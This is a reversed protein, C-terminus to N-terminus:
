LYKRHDATQREVAGGDKFPVGKKQIRAAAEPGWVIAKHMLQKGDPDRLTVDRLEFGPGLDKVVSKLNPGLKEYLQAQASEAGPFAVFQKGMQMAGSVANKVMLQQVVQPSTEMGAFSEPLQYMGAEGREAKLIRGMVTAAKKEAMKAERRLRDAEGLQNAEQALVRQQELRNRERRYQAVLAEDKQTSGGKTGQKRLDDLLDSQLENVYIGEAKGIGPIETTHESFRSFAIPSPPNNLSPHQGEYKALERTDDGFMRRAETAEKKVEKLVERNAARADDFGVRIAKLLEPNNSIHLAADKVATFDPLNIPAAGNAALWQNGKQAYDRVAMGTALSQVDSDYFGKGQAESLQKAYNNVTPWFDANLAPYMINSKAAEWAQDFEAVKRFGQAVEAMKAATADSLPVGPNQLFNFLDDAIKPDAASIPGSTGIRSLALGAEKIREQSAAAGPPLEESLHIVGLPQGDSSSGIYPNDMSQYFEGPKGPPIVTTKFQSPDYQTKIRNLLDVPNLKANGPLDALTSEARAIDYDRMKGKLMGLFQDKQVPGQLNAVMEDLRGVFPAEASPTASFIPESVKGPVKIAGLQSAASTGGGSSPALRAAKMAGSVLPAVQLATGAGFGAQGATTIGSIDPHLASFGQEDPPTGLFGSVAAYTRPDPLTNVDRMAALKRAAEGQRAIKPNVTAPRSAAAIEEPTPEASGGDARRVPKGKWAKGETKEGQAQEAMQQVLDELDKQSKSRRALEIGVRNNHLDQEYDIPMQSIGLKSGIWKGPSTTIEHLNGLMEAANPGYKRALTGAALMHRAADQQDFQGQQGPYMDRAVARSYPSVSLLGPEEVEGGDAFRPNSAQQIIWRNQEEPTLGVPPLFYNPRNYGEPITPVVVPPAVPTAPAPAAAAAAAAQRAKFRNMSEFPRKFPPNSVPTATGPIETGEVEGGDAFRPKSSQEMIWRNHEEPTLGAPPLFYNPRDYGAPPGAPVVPAAVPAAVPTTPKAATPTAAASSVLPLGFASLKRLFTSVPPAPEPEPAPAPTMPMGLGALRRLFGSVPPAPEPEPAPPPVVPMGLRALIRSFPSSSVEGGEAFFSNISLGYQEPNAMVQFALNRNNLDKKAALGKAQYQEPTVSPATPMPTTFDASRPGANYAEAAKNYATIQNNYADYQAKIADLERKASPRVMATPTFPLGGGALHAVEGGSALAQPQQVPASAFPSKITINGVDALATSPAPQEALWKEAVGPERDVDRDEKEDTDALFSLALAAQYGAGLGAVKDPTPAQASMGSRLAPEMMKEAPTQGPTERSVTPAAKAAPAGGMKKELSAMVQDTTKGKLNPNAKIVQESFIKEMPTGPEASLFGKVGSPGFYHAAYIEAPRPDRNLFSKLTQTNKAIVDTGVRINEDPDFKKGPAGGFEKWTKDVVQFLGGASSTGAKASPTMESEARAIRLAVDPDIGKAQAAARIKDTLEQAM